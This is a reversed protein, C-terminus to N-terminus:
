IINYKPNYHYICTLDKSKVFSEALFVNEKKILGFFKKITLTPIDLKDYCLGCLEFCYLSSVSNNFGFDYPTKNKLFKKARSIARKQYRKPRFIAIRDCRTFEIVNTESVGEAVAHIIKGNGIYLAGHSFSLPDPIFCGDLYNDYGRLIIDGPELISIIDLVQEGGVSFYHPDYVLFMPFKFIKIEGFATLFKSWLKYLFKKM